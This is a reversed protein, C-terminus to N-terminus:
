GKLGTTAIGDVLRRQFFFFILLLPIISLTSMAFLAGWSSASEGTSSSLMRLALPVTMVRDSLLYLLQSFFDNWTWVFTFIAVTVLAPTCMPLIVHLFIRFPGCGDMAAAEDLERPIGRIFQVTLFIFFSDVALFKPVVLPVISDVLHLRNFLVYQPIITVHPPLMIGVLMLAFLVNRWRFRLRAFVYATLTCSLLNGIISLASILFSNFFYVGFPSVLRYWGKPYNEVTPQSPILGLNRFIETEPKLSSSVLWALPYLMLVAGIVLCIAIAGSRRNVRGDAVVLRRAAKAQLSPM